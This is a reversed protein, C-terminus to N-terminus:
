TFSPGAKHIGHAGKHHYYSGLLTSSTETAPITGLSRPDKAIRVEIHRKKGEGELINVERSLKEGEM